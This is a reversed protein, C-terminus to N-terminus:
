YGRDDAGCHNQGVELGLWRTWRHLRFRIANLIRVHGLHGRACLKYVTADCVGLIRAVEAVSLLPEGDKPPSSSRADAPLLIPAFDKSFATEQQLARSDGNAFDSDNRVVQSESGRM